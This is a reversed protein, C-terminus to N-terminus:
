SIHPNSFHSLLSSTKLASRSASASPGSVASGQTTSSAPAGVPTTFEGAGPKYARGPTTVPLATVVDQAEGTEEEVDDDMEMEVEMATQNLVAYATHDPLPFRHNPPSSSTQPTLVIEVLYMSFSCIYFSSPIFFCEKKNDNFDSVWIV